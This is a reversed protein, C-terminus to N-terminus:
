LFFYYYERKVKKCSKVRDGQYKAKCVCKGIRCRAINAFYIISVNSKKVLNLETAKTNRKVFANEKEVSRKRIANTGASPHRPQLLIYIDLYDVVTNVSITM